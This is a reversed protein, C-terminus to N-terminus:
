RVVFDGLTDLSFHDLVFRGMSDPYKVLPTACMVERVMVM